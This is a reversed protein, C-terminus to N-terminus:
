GNEAERFEVSEQVQMIKVHDLNKTQSRVVKGFPDVESEEIVWSEPRKIVGDPFWKPM